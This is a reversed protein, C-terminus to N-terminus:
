ADRERVLQRVYTPRDRAGWAYKYPEAGRMFDFEEAGERIAEEIALAVVLTGPSYRRFEPDFGGLYYYARPARYLGYYAAIPRGGVRLLYLRVEGLALLARAASRHFERLTADCLMGPLDCMRWRAEHLRVFVCFMDDFSQADARVHDVAGLRALIRRCYRVNAHLRPSMCAALGAANRPLGLVPCRSQVSTLDICGRPAGIALLPSGPRLAHFECADWGDGMRALQAEIAALADEAGVDDVLVDLYDALGSGMLVMLRRKSDPDTLVLWPAIAILREGRRVTLVALQGSGFHSWWALLWAPSQFPTASACRRYLALWEPHLAALARPDDILETNV